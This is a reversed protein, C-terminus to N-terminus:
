FDLSSGPIAMDIRGSGDEEQVLADGFAGWDLEKMGRATVAARLAHLVRLVELGRALAHM